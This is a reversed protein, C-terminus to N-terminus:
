QVDNVFTTLEDVNFKCDQDEDYLPFLEEDVGPCADPNGPEWYNCACDLIWVFECWDMHDNENFDYADIIDQMTADDPPKICQTAPDNPLPCDEYICM